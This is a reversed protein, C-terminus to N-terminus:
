DFWVDIVEPVRRMEAGCEDCPYTVEDVYPRHPDDLTRGSKSDLDAFSGLCEAHGNECRWVPLPTGWYRERSIAWDVNNELWKGFRGYKIHPPYWDVTENAALLRDRLASTRIYWSPKAYYLLPTGCRWCHPYAHLLTEARLLRGRARLDEVLDPDADKVWRGAYPGIREDYTGDLRVPNVVTMAHEAGLRYDDEGFALATHVIGTGDDASVFDGPLVTNGKEGWAETPIFDFPPEYRTGIMDAGKFRDAVQADDGLVAQARAEALVFGDKTRVYTLDPAVSLAAHSLVTWPTTTWALLRDGARLAGSPRTVPFRVYISPDEVDKYGQAVEHSSLATGCRVCYPVVKHGEYLLDHEWMTKLAWWVSEIYRPDLTYYADDLDVWYGIRETLAQWDSVHELVAERCKRNFEAIGYREIDDKAKFGLQQEVAIEVALGHCDWGGKREVYRGRMTQYRPFIDKFARALVHHSGPRGNATPPGEYFVYPEAGQRRRVSEHFVDRERWRELVEEELAPFDPKAPLPRPVPSPMRPPIVRASIATPAASASIM